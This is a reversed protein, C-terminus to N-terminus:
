FQLPDVQFLDEVGGQVETQQLVEVASFSSLESLVSQDEPTLKPLPAEVTAKVSQTFFYTRTELTAELLRDEIVEESGSKGFSMTRISTFPSVQEVKVLFDTVNEFTGSVKLTLDMFDVNQPTDKRNVSKKTLSAADSAIEGPQIEFHDITVSSSVAVANLSGLLEILPKHSPLATEVTAKQAYEPTFQVNQLEVLKTKLKDLKPQEAQAQNYLSWSATIQPVIAALILLVGTLALAVTAVFFQRTALFVKLNVPKKDDKKAAM